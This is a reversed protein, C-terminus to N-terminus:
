NLTSNIVDWIVPKELGMKWAAVGALDYQNALGVRLRISNEDELWIKYTAGNKKYTVYYQGSAADWTKVANNQSTLSEAAQMSVAESTVVLKGSSDYAEKWVITYFPMGLLLKDKPVELLVKQLNDEVWKLQSVSGSVNGGVWHQDYAMLAIYDSVQSLAGRDYCSSWSSNNVIVTVDVSLTIGLPKTQQYLESIFQTFLDKDSTYMNEFDINLGDLNYTKAYTILNNVANKRATENNLVKSAMDRNFDNGVLAWVKYGNQHAWNTYDLSAINTFDGNTSNLTFWTPSLVDLGDIKTSGSMDPTSKYLNQWAISIKGADNGGEDVVVENLISYMASSDYVVWRGEDKKMSLKDTIWYERSSGAATATDLKYSATVEALYKSKYSVYAIFDKINRDLNINQMNLYTIINSRQMNQKQEKGISYDMIDQLSLSGQNPNSMYGKEYNEAFAALDNNEQTDEPVQLDLIRQIIVAAEARTANGYPKFSGDPNGRIIDL